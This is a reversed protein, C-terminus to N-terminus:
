PYLNFFEIYGKVAVTAILMDDLELLKPVLEKKFANHAPGYPNPKDVKVLAFPFRSVM